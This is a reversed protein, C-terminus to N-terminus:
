KKNQARQAVATKVKNFNQKVTKFVKERFTTEINNEVTLLLQEASIPATEQTSEQVLQQKAYRLLSDAESLNSVIQKRQVVVNSGVKPATAVTTLTEQKLPKVKQIPQAKQEKSSKEITYAQNAVGISVQKKPTTMLKPESVIKPVEKKLHQKISTTDIHTITNNKPLANNKSQNNLVLFLGLVVSAAVGLYWFLPKTKKIEGDLQRELKDWSTASPTITRAELQEKIKNEFNDQLM